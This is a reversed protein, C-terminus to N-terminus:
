ACGGSATTEPGRWAPPASWGRGVSASSDAAKLSMVQRTLPLLALTSCHTNGQTSHTPQQRLLLRAPLVAACCAACALCARLRPSALAARATVSVTCTAYRLSGCVCVVYLVYCPSLVGLMGSM